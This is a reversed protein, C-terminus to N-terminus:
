APCPRFDFGQAYRRPGSANLVPRQQTSETKIVEIECPPMSQDPISVTAQDGSRAEAHDCAPLRRGIHDPELWNQVPDPVRRQEQVTRHHMRGTTALAQPSLHDPLVEHCGTLQLRHFYPRFRRTAAHAIQEFESEFLHAGTGICRYGSFKHEQPVPRLAMGIDKRRRERPLAEM